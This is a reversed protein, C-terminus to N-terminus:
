QIYHMTITVDKNNRLVYTSANVIRNSLKKDTFTKSLTHLM